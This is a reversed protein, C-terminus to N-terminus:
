NSYTKWYYMIHYITFHYPTEKSYDSLNYQRLLRINKPLTTSLYCWVPFFSICSKLYVTILNMLYLEQRYRSIYFYLLADNFIILGWESLNGISDWKYEVKHLLTFIYVFKLFQNCFKELSRLVRNEVHNTNVTKWM